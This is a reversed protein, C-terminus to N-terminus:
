RSRGTVILMQAPFSMRGGTFFEAVAEKVEDAIQLRVSGPMAELKERLTGSTGSRMEWFEDRSIPAEIRFELLRERVHNAGAEKLINALKGRAAFRFAGPADPDVLPMSVHRSIVDTVVHAFPNLQSEYWVAFSLSGDAKTVRVM